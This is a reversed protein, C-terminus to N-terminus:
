GGASPQGADAAPPPTDPRDMPVERPNLAMGPFFIRRVGVVVVRDGPALGSEVVRLGDVEPGLVVDRREARSGEGVVFVYKRDQDTQIAQPHVLLAPAPEGGM